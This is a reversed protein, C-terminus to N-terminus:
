VDLFRVTRANESAPPGITGGRVGEKLTTWPVLGESGGPRCLRGGAESARRMAAAAALLSSM